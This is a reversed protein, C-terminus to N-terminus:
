SVPYPGTRVTAVDMESAVRTLFDKAAFVAAAKMVEISDAHDIIVEIRVNSSWQTKPELADVRARVKNNSYIFDLGTLKIEMAKENYGSCNFITPGLRQAQTALFM